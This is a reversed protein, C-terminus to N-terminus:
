QMVQKMVPTMGPEMQATTLGAYRKLLRTYVKGFAPGHDYKAHPTMVHAMEHLLVGRTRGAATLEVRWTGDTFMQAYSMRKGGHLMGAGAVLDFDTTCREGSLVANTFARLEGITRRKNLTTGLHNLWYREYDYVARTFTRQRQNNLM